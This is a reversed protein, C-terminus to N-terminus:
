FSDVVNFVIAEGSSGEWFPPVLSNSGVMGRKTGVLQHGWGFLLEVKERFEKFDKRKFDEIGKRKMDENFAWAFWTMVSYPRVFRTVNNIGPLFQYMLDLNVQRLGLFDVGGSEDKYPAVFFPAEVPKM